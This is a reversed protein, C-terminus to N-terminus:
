VGALSRRGPSGWRDCCWCDGATIVSAPPMAGKSTTLGWSTTSRARKTTTSHVNVTDWVALDYSVASGCAAVIGAPTRWRASPLRGDPFLLLLFYVPFLYFAFDWNAVWAGLVGGPMGRSIAYLGYAEGLSDLVAGFGSFLLLWGIPSQPRRRAVVFGPFAYAILMVPEVLTLAWPHWEPHPMSRSPIAFAVAMAAMVATAIWLSWATRKQGLKALLPTTNPIPRAEQNGALKNM